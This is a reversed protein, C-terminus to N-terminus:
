IANVFFTVVRMHPIIVAVSIATEERTAVLAMM